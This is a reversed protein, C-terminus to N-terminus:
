ILKLEAAASEGVAVKPAMMAKALEMQVQRQHVIRDPLDVQIKHIVIPVPSTVIPRGRPRVPTPIEAVTSTVFMYTIMILSAKQWQLRLQNPQRARITPITM